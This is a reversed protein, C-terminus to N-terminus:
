RRKREFPVTRKLGGHVLHRLVRHIVLFATRDERGHEFEVLGRNIHIALLELQRRPHIDRRINLGPLPPHNLIQQTRDLPRPTLAQPFPLKKTV